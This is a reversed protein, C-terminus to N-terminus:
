ALRVRGRQNVVVSRTRAGAALRITGNEATGLAGFRIRASAPLGAFRVGPPLMHRELVAGGAHVECTGIGADFHVEVVVNRALARGRALRLTAAVVRSGAALHSTDALARVGLTGIAALVASLGLAALLELLTFGRPRV